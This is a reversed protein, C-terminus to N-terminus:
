EARKVEHWKVAGTLVGPPKVHHLIISTLINNLAQMEDKARIQYSLCLNVQFEPYDNKKPPM